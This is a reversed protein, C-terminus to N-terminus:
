LNKQAVRLKASRARPNACCEAETPTIPKKTIVQLQPKHQCVCVPVDLGCICKRSEKKFFEKVIRDELSHFSIVAIRGGPQINELVLPLVLQLNDLERNVAIRLAQFTKTAFHIRGHQFKKPVAKAIVEVLDQTFLIPKIKRQEVIERAIRRAFREEGYQSIIDVLAKEDYKNVILTANIKGVVEEGGLRMDLPFNKRFSIGLLGDDLQQSSVGLDLLFMHFKELGVVQRFKDFDIYNGKQLSVRSGYEMLNDASAKLAADDMDVGLMKGVPATKQLIAKSHGGGGITGDIFNEGKQPNLLDVVETTLVSLHFYM